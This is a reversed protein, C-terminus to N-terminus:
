LRLYYLHISSHWAYISKTGGWMAIIRLSPRCHLEVTLRFGSGSTHMHSSFDFTVWIRTDSLISHWHIEGAVWFQTDSSKSHWVYHVSVRIENVVLIGNWHGHFEVAVWSSNVRMMAVVFNFCPSGRLCEVCPSVAMFLSTYPDKLKKITPYMSTWKPHNGVYTGAYPEACVCGNCAFIVSSSWMISKVLKSAVCWEMIVIKEYWITAVNFNCDSDGLSDLKMSM